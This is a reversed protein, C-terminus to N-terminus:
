PSGRRHRTGARAVLEQTTDDMLLVAVTDAGAIDRVRDLLEGLLDEVSLRVLAADTVAQLDRLQAEARQSHSSPMQSHYRRM